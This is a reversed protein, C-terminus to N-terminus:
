HGHDNGGWLTRLRAVTIPSKARAYDLRARVSSSRAIVARPQEAHYGLREALDGATAEVISCSRDDLGHPRLELAGSLREHIAPDFNRDAYEAGASAFDLMQAEFPVALHESVSRMTRAPETVLAEYRVEVYRDGLATGVRQGAEVHRRWYYACGEPTNTAWSRQMLSAAVSRPDRIIHVFRSEPFLASLTELHLVYAPTKDGGWQKGESEAFNNYLSRLDDPLSGSESLQLARDLDSREIGSLALRGNRALLRARNERSWTSLIPLQGLRSLIPIFHTEGM